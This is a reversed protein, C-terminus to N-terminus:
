KTFLYILKQLFTNPKIVEVVEGQAVEKSYIWYKIPFQWEEVYVRPLDKYECDYLSKFLTGGDIDGDAFAIMADENEKKVCITPDGHKKYTTIMNLKKISHVATFAFKYNWDFKLVQLSESDMLYWCDNEVYGIIVVAHNYGSGSNVIKGNRWNYRGEVAVTVPSVKLGYKIVQPTSQKLFQYRLEYKEGRLEVTKRLDDQIKTAYVKELTTNLDLPMETEWACFKKRTIEFVNEFSNGRNPRTGTLIGSYIDSFNIEENYRFKHILERVNNTSFNVCMYTDEGNALKQIETKIEVDTWQGSPNIAELQIPNAGLIHANKSVENPILGGVPQKIKSIDEQLLNILKM